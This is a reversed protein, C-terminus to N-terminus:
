VRSLRAVSASLGSKCSYLRRLLKIYKISCVHLYGLHTIAVPILLRHTPMREKADVCAVYYTIATMRLLVQTLVVTSVSCM